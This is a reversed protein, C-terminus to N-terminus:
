FNWWRVEAPTNPHLMEDRVAEPIYVRDFLAALLSLKGLLALYHVPGTDAVVLRM